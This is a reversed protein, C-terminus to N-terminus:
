KKLKFKERLWLDYEISEVTMYIVEDGKELDLNTRLLDIAGECPYPYVWVSNQLRVFGFKLLMYRLNDRSFRLNEKIDFIVLRYKGDWKAPKSKLLGEIEFKLLARRGEKTLRAFVEGNSKKVTEILRGHKLKELATNIYHKQRDFKKKPLNFLKLVQVANPMVVAVSVLATLGIVGLIIKGVPVREGYDNKMFVMIGNRKRGYFSHYNVKIHVSLILKVSARDSNGM